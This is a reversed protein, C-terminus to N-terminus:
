GRQMEIPSVGFVMAEGISTSTRMTPAPGVPEERALKRERVGVVVPRTMLEAELV